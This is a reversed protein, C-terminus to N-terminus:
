RIRCYENKIRRIKEEMNEKHIEFSVSVPQSKTLVFWHYDCVHICERTKQSGIFCSITKTAEKNCEQYMCKNM